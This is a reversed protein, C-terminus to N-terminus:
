RGGGARQQLSLERPVPAKSFRVPGEVECSSYSAGWRFTYRDISGGSQYFWSESFDGGVRTPGERSTPQGRDNRLERMEPACDGVVGVLDACGALLPLLLLTLPRGQM